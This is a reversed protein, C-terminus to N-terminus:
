STLLESTRRLVFQAFEPPLDLSPAASHIQELVQLVVRDATRTGMRWRQAEAVLDDRTIAALRGMGNITMAANGRLSPWLATPVTDYLPSLEVVGPEVHVFSLNKGHADANGIVVTFVTAALLRALQISPEAAFEELVNAVQALSPGGADQYKGRGRAAEANIGLAQCADEQHVRRSPAPEIATDAKIAPLRDFRSVIITEIGAITETHAEVTTLDIARALALAAAEASAMGPFRRDEVKLIHTSPFGEAPRAWGTATRVLLMKNQLGPLSLESDEHIALPNTELNGVDNALEDPTYAVTHGARPAVVDETTIVAAGAVDRGFRKLLGCTDLTTVGAEQAMAQLANGEPLMGRFYLGANKRPRRSMPLSCSLVATNLHWRDLAESTYTATIRGPGGDKLDAVHTDYLWVRLSGKRAM